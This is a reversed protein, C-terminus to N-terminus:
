VGSVSAHALFLFRGFRGRAVRAAHRDALQGGAHGAEVLDQAAAERFKGEVDDGAAGAAALRRM